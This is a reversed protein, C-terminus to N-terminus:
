RAPFRAPTTTAEAYAKAAKLARDRAAAFADVFPAADANAPDVFPQLAAMDALFERLTMRADDFANM